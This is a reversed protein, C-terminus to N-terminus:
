GRAGPREAVTGSAALSATLADVLDHRDNPIPLRVVKGDKLVAVTCLDTVWGYGAFRTQAFDTEFRDIDEWALFVTRYVRTTVGYEDVSVGMRIAAWACVEAVAVCLVTVVVAGWPKEHAYTRAGGLAFVLFLACIFWHFV